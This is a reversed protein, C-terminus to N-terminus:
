IKWKINFQNEFDSESIIKGGTIHLFVQTGVGDEVIQVTLM